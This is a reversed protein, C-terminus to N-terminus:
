VRVDYDQVLGSLFYPQYDLKVALRVAPRVDVAASGLPLVSRVLPCLNWKYYDDLVTLDWNRM